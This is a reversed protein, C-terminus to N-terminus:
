VDQRSATALSWAWAPRPEVRKRADVWDPFVALIEPWVLMWEVTEEREACEEETPHPPQAV